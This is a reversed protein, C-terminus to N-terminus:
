RKQERSRGKLLEALPVDKPLENGTLMGGAGRMAEDPIHQTRRQQPNVAPDDKKREFEEQLKMEQMVIDRARDRAQSDSFALGRQRMTQALQQVREEIEADSPRTM